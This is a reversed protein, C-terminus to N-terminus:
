VFDQSWYVVLKELVAITKEEIYRKPSEVKKNCTICIRRAYDLDISCSRCIKKGCIVCTDISISKHCEDCLTKICVACM